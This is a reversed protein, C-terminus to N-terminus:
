TITLLLTLTRCMLLVTYLEADGRPDPKMGKENLMLETEKGKYSVAM